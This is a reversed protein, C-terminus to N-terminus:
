RLHTISPHVARQTGPAVDITHLGAAGKRAVESELLTGCGPCIHERIELEEHLRLRGHERADEVTRRVASRKWDAGTAGLRTGCRCRITGDSAIGFVGDIELEVEGDDFGARLERAPMSGGLRTRRIELRRAATADADVTGDVVVVGYYRAAGEGTVLGNELDQQVLQPSREIPDGYGGGGQFTYAFVEGASLPFFGPKSGLSRAEVSDFVCKQEFIRDVARVGDGVPLLANENCSGEFGGFLGASNPVEVGHTILMAHLADADHPTIALGISAGGRTRGPGGTDAVFHRYLYLLPGEAELTEVNVVQPRPVCYDGGGDLGDRHPHAGGGGAMADLLLTGWPVGDRDAAGLTVIQISGKTVASAEKRMQPLCSALRSLVAVGVNSVVWMAAVSAMSVPAPWTASVISGEPAEVRIARVLGENWRIDPALIPLLSTFLSGLLGKRTCNIFGPAQPSSGDMDFILEDGRKHVAMRIEYLRNEHGDHEIFDVGRYTGDPMSALRARFQQESVDLETEMVWEVVDAGYREILELMRRIAVNNSAIMAKLDLGLVLPLRSMGMITRWVDDRVVGREVLKLGPLLMAEQQVETANFSWSGFNMGGVDLQHACTGAWAVRRGEHFIPAVITMDHQHVAGRYPDNLIFMDGEEIGPNESCEEIISRVVSSMTASHFLVQPGMTVVSGDALYIGNNFDNAGVVVPSGSASKLTIAMEEAITRLKNRIVEFTVPDTAATEATIRDAAHPAVPATEIVLNGFGDVTAAQDSGVYVTTTPHEIVAPGQVRDEPSLTSWHLVMTPQMSETRRDYVDRERREPPESLAGALARAIKPKRTRGVGDVRFTTIEIGAERFGAGKGYTDEYTAEYRDVLERVDDTQLRKSPVPIILENTQRRYRIDCSRALTLDREEVGYGQMADRTRAELEEFRAELEDADLGEWGARPGGGGRVIYSREASNHIDSALAGYASQVMSTTPVIIRRVGLEAGYGACHMPGAGGYAYLVFDRPDHGRGITLERLTDAMQSDVIRRIGAAAELLTLGLPTAIQEEVARSAAERDLKMRGGLFSEPDIIGLVLDADTVTAREGGRGYCVPGPHAGASEPGVSILGDRVTAISGGGAGIARIDVMPARVHYKGVETVGSVTPRGDIILSADFSTGGMDTAIVNDHGLAEALYRTGIVGGTPGSALLLVAREAAEGAGMVGGISNLVSFTGCFGNERLRREIQELYRAVAPGLYSNLVTTATREYEGLVPCIDASLSVFLEDGALERAIEAVRREHDANRFSWLFSVALAEVGEALLDRLAARVGDEDLALLVNGAQDVREAIERVWRRPVIPEPYARRSYWGLEESSMGATMGLLRQLFITDGFGRTTILGTKAGKREILANTAQTTGYGFSAVEALFAELPANRSEAVLQLAALVGEDLAHPTTAAKTTTVNGDEDMVVLDTFTGGIDVGVYLV